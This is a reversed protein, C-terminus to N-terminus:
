TRYFHVFSKTLDILKDNNELITQVIENHTPLLDILADLIRSQFSPSFIIQENSVADFETLPAKLIMIKEVELLLELNKSM